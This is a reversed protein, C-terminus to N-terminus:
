EVLDAISVSKYDFLVMSSVKGDVKIITDASMFPILM